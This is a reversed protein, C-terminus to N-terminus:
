ALVSYYYDVIIDLLAYALYDSGLTRFRQSGKRLREKIPEFIEETGEFFTILYNPGFIISLQEDKLTHTLAVFQLFRVVIFVQDGYVDLKPRQDKNIIDELALPHLHFHEGISSIKSPDSIGYIQVWTMSPNNMSEVCEDLSAEKKEILRDASYEIFSLRIQKDEGNEKYLFGPPQGAPTIKKQFLRAM